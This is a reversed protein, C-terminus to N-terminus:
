NLIKIFGATVGKMICSDLEQFRHQGNDHRINIENFQQHICSLVKHFKFVSKTNCLKSQSLKNNCVFLGEDLESIVLYM